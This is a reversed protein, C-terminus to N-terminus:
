LEILEFKQAQNMRLNQMYYIMFATTADVQDDHKTNPFLLLENEYAPLWPANKPLYFNGSEMIMKLAQVGSEMRAQKSGEPNFPIVNPYNSHKLDQILSQGSGKDEILLTTFGMIAYKYYMDKVLQKLQIYPVRKVYSELVAVINGKVGFAVCATPDNMEKDKYATDFSLIIFDYKFAFLDDRYQFYERKFFDGQAVTPNQQYQTEFIAIGLDAIREKKTKDNFRSVLYEGEKFTIQKKTIPLYYSEEQKFCYPFTLRLYSLTESDYQSTIKHSLDVEGLRQNNIFVKTVPDDQKRTLFGNLQEFANELKAQSKIYSANIFDELFIFHFGEGTPVNSSTTTFLLTNGNSLIMEDANDISISISPFLDKYFKSKMVRSIGRRIKRKLASSGSVFLFRKNENVGLLYTGNVMSVAETKGTRPPAEILFLNEQNTNNFYHLNSLLINFFKDKYNWTPEVIETFLNAYYLLNHRALIQLDKPKM